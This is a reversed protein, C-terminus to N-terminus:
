ITLPVVAGNLPEPKKALYMFLIAFAQLATVVWFAQIYSGTTDYIWAAFVPYAVNTIAGFM